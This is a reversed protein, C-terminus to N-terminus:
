SNVLPLSRGRAFGDVKEREADELPWKQVNGADVQPASLLCELTIPPTNGYKRV